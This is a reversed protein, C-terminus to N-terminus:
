QSLSGNAIFKIQIAQSTDSSGPMGEMLITYAKQQELTITRNSSISSGNDISVMVQGPAVPVFQSVSKYHANESVANIGNASITVKPNTSDPIANIYRVYAQGNTSSLSDFNDQVIVNSYVSGAGVVFLSYYKNNNFNYNTNTIAVNTNTYDYAQVSMNGPYISLYNGTYSTYLLPSQTLSNNSLAIVLGASKDPVLNFAMIGSVQQSNTNNSTKSCASLLSAFLVCGIVAYGTTSLLSKKM